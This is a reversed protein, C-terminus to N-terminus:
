EGKAVPYGKDIWDTGFDATMYVVKFNTYGLSHLLQYAPHLM